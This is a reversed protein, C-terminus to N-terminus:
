INKFGQGIIEGADTIVTFASNDVGKVLTILNAVEYKRVACFLLENEEGTFGGKSSIRTIGRGLENAVKEVIKESKRTVILVIKGKDAGYLMSDLVQTSAYITVLSFLASEFNAYVLASLAIVLADFVMIVRGVSIHPKQSNIFHAIIDVGGTTAGRLLILSLGLGSLIGGFVSALVPNLSFKPFMIEGINLLSSLIFTVAVTKLIFGGGLKKFAFLMLPVNLILLITGSPIPTVVSLVTSIGTFGGPSIRNPELLSVVSFSYIACGILWYLFDKIYRKYEVLYGRKLTRTFLKGM